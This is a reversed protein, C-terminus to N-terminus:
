KIQWDDENKIIKLGKESFEGLFKNPPGNYIVKYFINNNDFHLVFFDSVLDLDNLTKEFLQIKDYDKSSLFVTMPLKISTNIKNITKWNDEYVIKLNEIFNKLSDENELNVEEFLNSIIKYDDNEEGDLLRLPPNKYLLMRARAFRPVVSQPFAPVQRLHKSGSFWEDIHKDLNRNYYFDLATNREAIEKDEQLYESNKISSIVADIGYEPLVITNVSTGFYNNVM